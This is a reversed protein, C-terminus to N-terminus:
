SGEPTCVLRTFYVLDESTRDDRFVIGIEGTPGSATQALVSDGIARTIRLEADIPALSLDIQRSYLEYGEDGDKDDSWVLLMRDGLPRLSPYRSFKPSDTLKKPAVVIAGKEDFTAGYIAHVASDQDHWAIAYASGTWAISPNMGAIAGGTVVKRASIAGLKRDFVRIVIDHRTGETHTWAFGLTSTGVAVHPQGGQSSDLQVSAGVVNGDADVRRAYPTLDPGLDRQDEWVVVYESGTWQMHTGLSWIGDLDSVAVDPGLKNGKADLRNFFTEWDYRRDDWAVGFESGTWVVSLGWSDATVKTLQSEAITSTGDNALEQTFVHFKGGPSGTYETLYNTGNWAIGTPQAPPMDSSIRIADVSPDPAVYHFPPIIGDCDNDVGCTEKAGPHITPNTDDCDDGCSGPDGAKHGPLPGRHGDGDRDFTAPAHACGITPACTDNTCPDHDDCDTTPLDMCRGAATCTVPICKDGFGDCDEPRTCQPQPTPADVVGGDVDNLGTRAGCAVLSAISLISAVRKVRM